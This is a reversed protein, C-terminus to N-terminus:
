VQNAIEINDLLINAHKKKPWLSEDSTFGIKKEYQKLYVDNVLWNLFLHTNGKVKKPDGTGLSLDNDALIKQIVQDAKTVESAIDLDLTFNLVGNM